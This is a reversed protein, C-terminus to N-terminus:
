LEAFFQEETKYCPVVKTTGCFASFRHAKAGSSDREPRKSDNFSEILKQPPVSLLDGISEGNRGLKGFIARGQRV